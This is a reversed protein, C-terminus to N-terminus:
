APRRTGEPRDTRHGPDAQRGTRPHKPQRADQDAEPIVRFLAFSRDWRHDPGRSREEVTGLLRLAPLDRERGIVAFPRSSPPDEALLGPGNRWSAPRDLYFLRVALDHPVPGFPTPYPLRDWPDPGDWDYLLVLPEEPPVLLSAEAYWSWERGRDEFRPVVAVHVIAVGAGIAGFLGIAGRRLLGASWGRRSRLRDGLRALGLGAWISWPPMAHILYHDNRVSALCLMATPVVAWAWLLRDLGGPARRARGFSQWSGVLALPTWPLAQLMPSLLFTGLPEGAFTTPEAALRDSVHGLWLGVAEPHRGAIALPWALAVLAAAAWGTPWALRRIAKADRDWLLVALIAATALAAGFGVGKALSTGGLLLFFAWRWRSIAPGDPGRLRDFAAISAAVLLALVMDADALRGRLISWSATVQCAGALLGASPGFHRGALGAVVMALMGAALASPLRAAAEDVGGLAWGALAAMWHSLPPKELWPRGGITPELWDGGPALLERAGQAVIAEHYSLRRAGGLGAGLVLVALGALLWGGSRGPGVASSRAM